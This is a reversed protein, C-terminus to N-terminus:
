LVGANLWKERDRPHYLCLYIPYHDGRRDTGDGSDGDGVGYARQLHTYSVPSYGQEEAWSVVTDTATAYAAITQSNVLLMAAAWIGSVCLASLLWRGWSGFKKVPILLCLGMMVGYVMKCPGAVAMLAMLLAIDRIQVKEKHYALDLCVATFLFMCALIMVDYSM